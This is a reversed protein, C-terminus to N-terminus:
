NGVTVQVSETVESLGLPDSMTVELVYKGPADLTVKCEAAESTGNPEFRADGPGEVKRWTYFNTENVLDSAVVKLNATKSPHKIRSPTASVSDIKKFTKSAEYGDNKKLEQIAKPQRNKMTGEIVLAAAKEAEIYGYERLLKVGARRVSASFMSDAPARDVVSTVVADALATLDKETLHSYPYKLTGRCQGAPNKAVARIAPYLLSRDIHAVEKGSLVGKPGYASGGYFLLMCLRGHAFQIPDEPDLPWEPKSTSSCAKLITEVEAMKLAQPLMRMSEAAVFRVLSDDDTLCEALVRASESETVRGLGWLAGVRGPHKSDKAIPVIMSLLKKSGIKRGALEVGSYFKVKPSWCSIDALLEQESRKSADHLAAFEAQEVDESQLLERDLGKGTVFLQRLPAAYTLLPPVSSDLGSYSLTDKKALIKSFAFGGDWRRCMDLHWSIHKFHMILAERSGAYAGLPAWQYNFYPGTHGGEREPFSAAAMKAFFVSEEQRGAIHRMVLAVLGSKGNNEHGKFLPVHEGYPIGGKGAYYGFFTAGREIAPQIEPHDIGCEKALILGLLAPLAASNVPGYGIINGRSGDAEPQQYIHGMTGYISQGNVISIACAEITPLVSKDKTQLYYEALAILTHGRNWSAKSRIEVKGSLIGDIEEQTLLMKPLRSRVVEMREKSKPNKPDNGALLSMVGWEFKGFKEQKAVYDLGEELIKASKPCDFPATASYSGMTRLKLPVVKQKGKRWVLLRLDAPSRAEADAIALAMSMRADATFASPVKGNGSVGLIVDDIMVQSDAPSGEEVLTVLIQRSKSTDLHQHYMWGRMGTPGLPVAAKDDPKGGTTLDPMPGAKRRAASADPTPVFLATMALLTVM